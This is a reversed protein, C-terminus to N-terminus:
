GGAEVIWSASRSRLCQVARNYHHRPKLSTELKGCGVAGAVGVGVEGKEPRQHVEARKADCLLSKEPKPVQLLLKELEDMDIRGARPSPEEIRAAGDSPAVAAKQEGIVVDTDGDWGVGNLETKVKGLPERFQKSAFFHTLVSQANQVIDDGELGGNAGIDGGLNGVEALGGFPSGAQGSGLLCGISAAFVGKSVVAFSGKEKTIVGFRMFSPRYLPQLIPSAFYRPLGDLHASGFSNCPVLFSNTRGVRRPVSRPFSIPLLWPM